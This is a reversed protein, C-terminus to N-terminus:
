LAGVKYKSPHSATKPIVHQSNGSDRLSGLSRHMMIKVFRHNRFDKLHNYSGTGLERARHSVGPM